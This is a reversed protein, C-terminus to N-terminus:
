KGVLQDLYDRLGAAVIPKPDSGRLLQVGTCGLERFAALREPSLDGGNWLICEFRHLPQVDSAQAPAAGLLGALSLAALLLGRLSLGGLALPARRPLPAPLAAGGRQQARPTMRHRLGEAEGLAGQAL